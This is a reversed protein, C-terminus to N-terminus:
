KYIVQTNNSDIIKALLKLKAEVTGKTLTKILKIFHSKNSKVNNEKFVVLAIKNLFLKEETNFRYKSFVEDLLQQPDKKNLQFEYDNFYM